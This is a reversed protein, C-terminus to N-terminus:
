WSFWNQENRCFLRQKQVTDSFKISSRYTSLRPNSIGSLRDNSCVINQRITLTFKSFSRLILYLEVLIRDDRNRSKSFSPERSKSGDDCNQCHFDTPVVRNPWEIKSTQSFDITPIDSSGVMFYNSIDLARGSQIVQFRYQAVGLATDGNSRRGRAICHYM